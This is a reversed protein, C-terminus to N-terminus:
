RDEAAFRVRLRETGPSYEVRAALAGGGRSVASVRLWKYGHEAHDAIQVKQAAGAPLPRNVLLGRGWGGQLDVSLGAVNTPHYIRYEGPEGPCDFLVEVTGDELTTIEPEGLRGSGEKRGLELPIWDPDPAPQPAAVPKPPAPAAVPKPAPQQPEVPAAHPLPESYREGRTFLFALLNGPARTHSGRTVVISLALVLVLWGALMWRFLSRLSSM